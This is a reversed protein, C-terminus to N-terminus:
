KKTLKASITVEKIGDPTKIHMAIKSGTITFRKQIKVSKPFEWETLLKNLAAISVGERIGDIIVAPLVGWDHESKAEALRKKKPKVMESLRVMGISNNERNMAPAQGRSRRLAAKNIPGQQKINFAIQKLINAFVKTASGRAGVDDPYKMALAKLKALQSVVKDYESNVDAVTAEDLDEDDEDEDDDKEFNYKEAIKLENKAENEAHTRMADELTPFTGDDRRDWSNTRNGGGNKGVTTENGGGVKNAAHKAMADELTPLSGDANRDWSNAEKLLDILKKM